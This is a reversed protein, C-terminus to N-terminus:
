RRGPNPEASAVRRSAPHAAMWGGRTCRPRVQIKRGLVRAAQPVAWATGAADPVRARFCDLRWLGTHFRGCHGMRRHPITRRKEFLLCRLIWVSGFRIFSERERRARAMRAAAEGTSAAPLVQLFHQPSLQAVQQLSFPLTQPLSQQLASFYAKFSSQRPVVGGDPFGPPPKKSDVAQTCPAPVSTKSEASHFRLSEM